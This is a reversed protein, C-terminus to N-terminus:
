DPGLLRRLAQEMEAVDFGRPGRAGRYAVTGDAALIFLRDPMANYARAVTDDMDDVLVPITLHLDSCCLTAVESRREMTKPQAITVHQAPRLGDSPHAERVYIFYFDAKERHREYIEQLRM